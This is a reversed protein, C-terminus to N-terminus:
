IGIVFYSLFKFFDMPMDLPTGMFNIEPTMRVAEAKQM